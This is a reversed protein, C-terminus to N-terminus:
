EVNDVRNAEVVKIATDIAEQAQKAHAEQQKMAQDTRKNQIENQLRMYEIDTRSQEVAVRATAIAQDGQAKERRQEVGAMDVEIQGKVMEEMPDPKGAAAEAEERLQEMYSAAKVKIDEIGRIDMNSLFVDLGERNMFDNFLESTGMLKILQDMAMQKAVSSNVGAEVKLQLINSDYNM